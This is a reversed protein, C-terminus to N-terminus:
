CALYGLVHKLRLSDASEVLHTKFIWNFDIIIDIHITSNIKKNPVNYFVSKSNVKTTNTILDQKEKAGKLLRSPYSPKSIPKDALNM